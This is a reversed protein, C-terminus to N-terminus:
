VQEEILKRQAQPIYPKDGIFHKYLKEATRRSIYDYRINEYYTQAENSWVFGIDKMFASIDSTTPYTSPSNM